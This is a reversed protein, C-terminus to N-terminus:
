ILFNKYYFYPNQHSVNMLIVCIFAMFHQKQAKICDKVTKTIMLVCESHLTFNIWNEWQKNNNPFCNMIM